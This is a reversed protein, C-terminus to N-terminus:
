QGRLAEGQALVLEIGSRRFRVAGNADLVFYEPVAWSNFARRASASVDFHIPVHPASRALFATFPPAPPEDVITVLTM